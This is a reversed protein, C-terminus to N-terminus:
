RRGVLLRFWCIIKPNKSRNNTCIGYALWIEPKGYTPIHYYGARLLRDLVRTHLVVQERSEAAIIKQIVQDIAPNKIGAFNYNGEEDAAKSGWFQAQEKGPTITQPLRMTTMDFDGRRM